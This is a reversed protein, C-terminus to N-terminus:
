KDRKKGLSIKYDDTRGKIKLNLYKIKKDPDLEVIEDEQESNVVSDKKNKFLKQWAAKRVTKWPVRLYYDINQNSDHTGSLEIHGLTSEITMAPINIKGRTIDLSNQLTDFRINQLNKDGMYDSLALM